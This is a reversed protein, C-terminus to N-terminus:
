SQAKYLGRVGWFHLDSFHFVSGDCQTPGHPEIAVTWYCAKINLALIFWTCHLENLDLMSTYYWDPFAALGTSIHIVLANM